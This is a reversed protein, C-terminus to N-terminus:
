PMPLEIPAVQYIANGYDDSFFMRGDPAFAVDTPRTRLSLHDPGFADVLLQFPGTPAHTTADTPACFVGAGLAFPTDYFSGHKAVCLTDGFPMPWIGREWDLGFPTDHVPFQAEEVAVSACSATPFGPAAVGSGECCPFGYETAPRIMLVKEHAGFTLGGDDGLETAVCVEDRFHCRLYMPNRFGRAAITNSGDPNVETIYGRVTDATTDPCTSSGGGANSYYM